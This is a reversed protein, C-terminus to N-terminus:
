KNSWIKTSKQKMEESWMWSDYNPYHMSALEYPDDSISLFKQLGLSVKIVQNLTEEVNQLKFSMTENKTVYDCWLEKEPFAKSYVALQRQHASSFKSPRVGVTKLDRIADKFVFDIYGLFPTPIDEHINYYIKHQYHEPEGFSKYTDIAQDYYRSLLGREKQAKIDEMSINNEICQENFSGYLFEDVAEKSLSNNCVKKSLALEVANGRFAGVGFSGKMGCLYTGIFLAPDTIWLNIKSPSLHEIGHRTFPNNSKM